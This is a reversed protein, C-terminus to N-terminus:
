STKTYKKYKKIFDKISLNLGQDISTQPKWGLRNAISCDMVKRPTGKLNKKIYKIKLKVNLIKM